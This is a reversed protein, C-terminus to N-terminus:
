NRKAFNKMPETIFLRSILLYSQTWLQRCERIIAPKETNFLQMKDAPLRLTYTEGSALVRDFDPNYRNFEEFSVGAYKAVIVANYRGKLLTIESEKYESAQLEPNIEKWQPASQGAASVTTVSGKGEIIYHTAIFKKVHNKTEAPLFSQLVWFDRSGTRTIADTVRGPGGNYAAIVLPWDKLEKYLEILYRAAAHTSKYYDMREDIGAAIHLGMRRGTEPMFQWAGSAGAWSTLSNNLGSEIVALYKLEVPLNYQRFIDDMMLFYPQGWQKMDALYKGFKKEYSENFSAAMPHLPYLPAAIAARTLSDKQNLWKKYGLGNAKYVITTDHQPYVPDTKKQAQPQILVAPVEFRAHQAFSFFFACVALPLLLTIRAPSHHHKKM